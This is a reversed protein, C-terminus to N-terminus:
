TDINAMRVPSQECYCSLSVPPTNSGSSNGCGIENGPDITKGPRALILSVRPVLSLLTAVLEIGTSPQPWNNMAHNASVM